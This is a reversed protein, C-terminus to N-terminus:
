SISADVSLDTGLKPSTMSMSSDILTLTPPLPQHLQRILNYHTVKRSLHDRTSGCASCTLPEHILSYNGMKIYNILQPSVSIPSNCDHCLPTCCQPISIVDFTYLTGLILSRGMFSEDGTYKCRWQSFLCDACIVQIYYPRSDFLLHVSPVGQRPLTSLFFIGDVLPYKDYIPLPQFCAVCPLSRMDHAGLTKLLCLRVDDGGQPCDDEMKIHIGNFKSPPIVRRLSDFNDRKWFISGNDKVQDDEFFTKADVNRKLIDPDINCRLETHISDKRQWKKDNRMSNVRGRSMCM